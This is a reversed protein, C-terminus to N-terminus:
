TNYIPPTVTDSELLDPRYLKLYVQCEINFVIETLVKFKNIQVQCENYQLDAVM